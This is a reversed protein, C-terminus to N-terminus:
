VLQPLREGCQGRRGVTCQEDGHTCSRSGSSPSNSTSVSERDESLARASRDPKPNLRGLGEVWHFKQATGCSRRGPSLASIESGYVSRDHRRRPRHASSPGHARSAVLDLFDHFGSLRSSLCIHLLSTKSPPRGYRVPFFHIEIDGGASYPPLRIASGSLLPTSRSTKQRV